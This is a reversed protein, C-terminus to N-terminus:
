AADLQYLDVYKESGKIFDIIIFKDWGLDDAIEFIYEDDESNSLSYPDYECDLPLMIAEYLNAKAQSIESTFFTKIKTVHKKM